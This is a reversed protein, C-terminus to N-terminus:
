GQSSSSASVSGSTSGSPDYFSFTFAPEETITDLQAQDPLAAAAFLGDFLNDMDPFTIWAGNFEQGDLVVNSDGPMMLSFFTDGGDQHLEAAGSNGTVSFGAEPITLSFATVAGDFIVSSGTTNTANFSEDYTFGITYTQGIQLSAPMDDDLWSIQQTSEVTVVAQLLFPIFVGFTTSLYRLM